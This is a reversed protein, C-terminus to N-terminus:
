PSPLAPQSPIKTRRGVVVGEGRRGLPGVAGVDREKIKGLRQGDCDENSAKSAEEAAAM